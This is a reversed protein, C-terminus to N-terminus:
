GKTRISYVYWELALMLSKRDGDNIAWKYITKSNSDGNAKDDEFSRALLYALRPISIPQSANRLHNLLQYIFSKGKDNNNFVKPIFELKPIVFNNFDDWTFVYDDRWVAISDKGPNHKATSELGGAEQAMRAIPYTKKYMGIGASITLVGNGTFEIFAERIKVAAYIIDSWNGMIFLDDGGSYIIQVRYESSALISNIKYKFFMSLSRSLTATRSLSVKDDPLGQIFAAGLNDVDARLVGLREVGMKESGISSSPKAYSAIGQGSQDATYDGMWIHTTLAIGTKWDNKVYVRLSGDEPHSLIKVNVADFYAKTSYTQLKKGFPLELVGSDSVVFVDNEILDRSIKQFQACLPCLGNIIEIDSRLCETCEKSHDSDLREPFNLAHIDRATYRKAKKASVNQSLTRFINRYREADQNGESKNMLDDASAHVYASSCYLDIKFKEMFWNKLDTDFDNLEQKAKSTNPFIAYAHGGGTYLLNCRTLDLRYLLEDMIHELLMDLYFSRARLQKLAGAGSIQYIFSQIGSLDCSWILFADKEYFQKSKQRDFFCERYNSIKNEQLYDFLCTAIAATTKVHDFLSVDILEAKNTSSPVASCNAELLDLLSGIGLPKIPITKLVSAIRERITNYNEHPITNKDNHGHLINFIKELNADKDFDVDDSVRKRDMGASINDAFYTIYALADDELNGKVLEKAHHYRIQTVISRKTDDDCNIIDEVFKAGLVSHNGKESIGRHVIKGVDHLLAGFALSIKQEHM